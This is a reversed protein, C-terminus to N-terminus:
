SNILTTEKKLSIFDLKIIHAKRHGALRARWLEGLFYGFLGANRGDGTKQTRRPPLELGKPYFFLLEEHSL